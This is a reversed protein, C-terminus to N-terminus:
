ALGEAHMQRRLRAGQVQFFDVGEDLLENRLAIAQEELRLWDCAEQRFKANQTAQFRAYAWQLLLGCDHIHQELEVSFPNQPARGVAPKAKPRNSAFSQTQEIWIPSNTGVSAAPSLSSTM